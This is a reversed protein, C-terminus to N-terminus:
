EVTPVTLKFVNEPDFKRKLDRVVGVKEGFVKELLAATSGARTSNYVSIYATPLVSEPEAEAVEAAMQAGWAESEGMKESSTAYGLIELMYHPERTAFVSGHAQPAASPGRLQHLSFMTGSDAPLRALNRAIAGAIAPTVRSINHTWASGYVATPVLASAGAMWEPLTTLAVANM